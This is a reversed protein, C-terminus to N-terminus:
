GFQMSAAKPIKKYLTEISKHFLDIGEPADLVYDFETTPITKMEAESAHGAIGGEMNGEKGQRRLRIVIGRAAKIRKIENKFRVDPIVVGGIDNFFSRVFGLPIVGKKQDYTHTGNLIDRAIRLAYDTWTDEYLSRGWETGLTQLAARPTLFGRGTPYRLDQKNREESPGWLQQDSFDYIEKCVRKLPDALSLKVFNHRKKLYDAMTDKGSGSQGCIGILLRTKM